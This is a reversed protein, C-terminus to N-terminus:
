IGDRAGKQNPLITLLLSYQKSPVPEYSLHWGANNILARLEDIQKQGMPSSVFLREEKAVDDTYLEAVIGLAYRIRRKLSHPRM